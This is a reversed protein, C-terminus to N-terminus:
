GPEGFPIDHNGIEVDHTRVKANPLPIGISRLKYHRPPNAIYCPVTETIGFADSIKNEDM